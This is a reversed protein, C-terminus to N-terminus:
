DMEDRHSAHHGASLHSAPSPVSFKVDSDTHLLFLSHAVPGPKLKSVEFGVRTRGGEGMWHCVEELLAM